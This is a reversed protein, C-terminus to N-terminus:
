NPKETNYDTNIREVFKVVDRFTFIYSRILSKSWDGGFGDSENLYVKYIPKDSSRPLTVRCVMKGNKSQMYVEVCSKNASGKVFTWNSLKYAWETLEKM